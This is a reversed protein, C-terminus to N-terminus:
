LGSVACSFYLKFRVISNLCVTIIPSFEVFTLEQNDRYMFAVFVINIKVKCLFIAMGSTRRATWEEYM